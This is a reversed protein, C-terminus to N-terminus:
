PKVAQLATAGGTVHHVNRVGRGAIERALERGSDPDGGDGYVVVLAAGDAVLEGVAKASVPDLFDYTVNRAGPLHWADFDKKERADVVVTGKAHLRPDAAEMPESEGHEDPCPVLIQYPERAVVPIGGTRVGNVALSVVVCLAAVLAADRVATRLVPRLSSSPAPEISESM